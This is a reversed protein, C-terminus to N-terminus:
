YGRRWFSKRLEEKEGGKGQYWTGPQLQRSIEDCCIRTCCKHQKAWEEVVSDAGQLWVAQREMESFGMGTGLPDELFRQQRIREDIFSCISVISPLCYSFTIGLFCMVPPSFTSFLLLLYRDNSRGVVQSGAEPLWAM